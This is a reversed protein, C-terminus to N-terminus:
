WFHVAIPAIDHLRQV